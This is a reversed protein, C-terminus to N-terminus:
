KKPEHYGESYDLSQTLSIIAFILLIYNWFVGIVVNIITLTKVVQPAPLRVLTAGSVILYIHPLLWFVVTAVFLLFYGTADNDTYAGAVALAFFVMAVLGFLVGISGFIVSILGQIKVMSNAQEQRHHKLEAM